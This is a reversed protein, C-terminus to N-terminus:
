HKICRKTTYLKAAGNQMAIGVEAINWFVSTCIVHRSIIGNFFDSFPKFALQICAVDAGHTAMVRRMRVVKDSLSTDSAAAVLKWSAKWRKTKNFVFGISSLINIQM